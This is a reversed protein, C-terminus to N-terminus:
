HQSFPPTQINIAQPVLDRNGSFSSKIDITDLNGQHGTKRTYKEIVHPSKLQEVTSKLIKSQRKAALAADKMFQKEHQEVELREKLDINTRKMKDISEALKLAEERFWAITTELYKVREDKKMKMYFDTNKKKYLLLECQVKTMHEKYSILFDKEHRSIISDHM